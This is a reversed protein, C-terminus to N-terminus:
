VHHIIHIHLHIKGLAINLKHGLRHTDSGVNIM